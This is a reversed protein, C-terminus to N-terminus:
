PKTLTRLKDLRDPDFRIGILSCSWQDKETRKSRPIAKVYGVLMNAANDWPVIGPFSPDKAEELIAQAMEAFSAHTPNM